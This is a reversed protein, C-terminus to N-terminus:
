PTSFSNELTSEVPFVHDQSATNKFFATHCLSAYIYIYVGVMPVHVNGFSCESKPPSRKIKFSQPLRENAVRFVCLSNTQCQRRSSLHKCPLKQCLYIFPYRSGVIALLWPTRPSLSLSLSLASRSDLIGFKYMEVLRKLLHSVVFLM